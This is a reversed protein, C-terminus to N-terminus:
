RDHRFVETELLGPLEAITRIAPYKGSDPASEAFSGDPILAASRTKILIPHIGRAAAGDLNPEWDDVFVTQEPPLGMQELANLYMKPDPKWAGLYCSYTKCDFLNEVGGSRLIRDSSPWTDSIIGLRYKAKLKFLTERYQEFFLYHSVDFVKSEAIEAAQEATIGLEPLEAALTDYFVKFQEAEEEATWLVHHDNMYQFAKGFAADRRDRPLGKIKELPAFELMKPIIFWDGSAPRFLTWGLDLFVGKIM